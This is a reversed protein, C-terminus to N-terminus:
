YVDEAPRLAFYLNQVVALLFPVTRQRRIATSGCSPVYLYISSCTFLESRYSQLLSGNWASGPLLTDIELNRVAQHKGSLIMTVSRTFTRM